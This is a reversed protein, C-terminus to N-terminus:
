ANFLKLKQFIINKMKKTYSFIWEFMVNDNPFLLDYM